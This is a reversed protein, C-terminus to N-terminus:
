FLKFHYRTGSGGSWAFFWGYNDARYQGEPDNTLIYKAQINNLKDWKGTWSSSGPTYLEADKTDAM